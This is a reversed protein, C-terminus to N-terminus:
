PEVYRWLGANFCAAVAISRGMADSVVAVQGPGQTMATPTTGSTWTGTGPEPAFELAPDVVVGVGAAGGAMSYVNKTMGFVITQNSVSGYHTWTQGYDASGLVGWGLASYAGAMFLLGTTNPQYIQSAGHAHENGDVM